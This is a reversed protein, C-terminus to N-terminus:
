EWWLRVVIGWYGRVEDFSVGAWWGCVGRDGKPFDIFDDLVEVIGRCYAMVVNCGPDDGVEV